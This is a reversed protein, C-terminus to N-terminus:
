LVVNTIAELNTYTYRGANWKLNIRNKHRTRLYHLSGHLSVRNIGPFEPTLLEMIRDPSFQVQIAGTDKLMRLIADGLGWNEQKAQTAALAAAEAAVKAEQAALELQTAKGTIDNIAMAFPDLNLENLMVNAIEDSVGLTKLLTEANLNM